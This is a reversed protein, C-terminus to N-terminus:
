SLERLVSEVDRASQGGEEEESGVLGVEVGTGASGAATAATTQGVSGQRTAGGQVGRGSADSAVAAALTQTDTGEQMDAAASARALGHRQPTSVEWGFMRAVHDLSLDQQPASDGSTGLIDELGPAYEVGYLAASPRHM